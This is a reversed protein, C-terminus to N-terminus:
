FQETNVTQMQEEGSTSLDSDDKSVTGGVILEYWRAAEAVEDTTAARKPKTHQVFFDGHDNSEETLSLECVNAYPAKKAYANKVYMQTLLTKGARSSTVRFSLVYPFAAGAKVEEPLLVFCEYTKVRKIKQNGIVEERKLGENTATVPITELFKGQGGETMDYIAWFTTMHVPIFELPKDVSGLLKNEITDRLEGPEAVKNKGKAKESIYHIPLIKAAVFDDKGIHPTVINQPMPTAVATTQKTVPVNQMDKEGQKTTKGNDAKM